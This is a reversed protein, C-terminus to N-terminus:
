NPKNNENNNNLQQNQAVFANNTRINVQLNPRRLSRLTNLGTYYQREARDLEKSLNSYYTNKLDTIEQPMGMYGWMLKSLRMVRVYANAVMQCLTIESPTTCSYEKKLEETFDVAVNYFSLDDKWHVSDMLMVHKNLYFYLDRNKSVLTDISKKATAKESNSNASQYHHFAIELQAKPVEPDTMLTMESVIEEFSKKKIIKTKTTQIKSM